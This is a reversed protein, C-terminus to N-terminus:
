SRRGIQMPGTPFHDDVTEWDADFGFVKSLFHFRFGDLSFQFIQSFAELTL